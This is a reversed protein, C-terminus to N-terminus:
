AAFSVGSYAGAVDGVLYSRPKLHNINIFDDGQALLYVAPWGSLIAIM